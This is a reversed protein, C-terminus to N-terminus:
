SAAHASTCAGASSPRPPSRTSPCTSGSRTAAHQRAPEGRLVARAAFGVSGVLAIERWRRRTAVSVSALVAPGSATGSVAALLNISWPSRCRGGVGSSSWCTRRPGWRSTSRRCLPESQEDAVPLWGIASIPSCSSSGGRTGGCASGLSTPRPTPASATRRCRALSPPGPDRRLRRPDRVAGVKTQSAVMVNPRHVAAAREPLSSAHDIDFSESPLVAREGGDVVDAEDALGTPHGPEEAGVTGALRGRHADHDPEGWGRVAPDRDSAVEVVVDGVRAPVDAYQEVGRGLVGAAGAALDEGDAGLGHAQGVGADVLHEVQDGEVLGLRLAPQAVVREAHLLPEADGVGQEAVRGHQDEVLRGVAEVRGADAPHTAQELAVGVAAAGHQQGAVQEVLDLLDGVLHDQDAAALDHGAAGLVLQQRGGLVLGREDGREVVLQEGLRELGLAEGDRRGAGPQPDLSRRDLHARDGGLPAITRVSRREASPPRSSSNRVRVSSECRSSSGAPATGAGAAVSPAWAHAGGGGGGGHLEVDRRCRM